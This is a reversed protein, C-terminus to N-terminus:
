TFSYCLFIITFCCSIFNLAFIVLRQNVVINSLCKRSFVDVLHAGLHNGSLFYHLSQNCITSSIMRLSCKRLLLIQSLLLFLISWPDDNSQRRSSPEVTMM